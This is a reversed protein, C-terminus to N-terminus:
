VINEQTKVVIEYAKDTVDDYVGMYAISARILDAQGTLGTVEYTNKIAVPITFQVQNNTGKTCLITIAQKTLSKFTDYDARNHFDREVTLGVNREGFKVFEAARSPTKLRYQHEPSDDVTLTFTDTDTVASGTPIQISYQGMGFPNTTVYVPVPDPQTAEDRGLVNMTCVLLSDTVTFAMSGIVCGVYGFTEENRTVSFSLTQDPVALANPTFTYVYNPGVGTKVVDGRAGYLLWPLTDETVEIEVTGEVRSPGQISGAVDAIGRLPRRWTPDQVYHLTENRILLTKEPAVYTGETAERAVGVHGSAGVGVTM